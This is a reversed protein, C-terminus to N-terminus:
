RVSFLVSQSPGESVGAHPIAQLEYSAAPLVATGARLRLSVTNAGPREKVTATTLPAPNPCRHQAASLSATCRLVTLAATGAASVRFTVRATGGPVLGSPAVALGALTPWSPTLTADGTMGVGDVSTVELRLHYTVHQKLPGFFLETTM